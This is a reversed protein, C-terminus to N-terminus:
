YGGAMQILNKIENLLMDHRPLYQHQKVRISEDIIKNLVLEAASSPIHLQPSIRFLYEYEEETIKGDAIMLDVLEVMQLVGEELNRPPTMEVSSPNNIIQSMEEGSMGWKTGMNLIMQREAEDIKGDASALAFMHFFRMKQQKNKNSGFLGM